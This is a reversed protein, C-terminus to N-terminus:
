DAKTLTALPFTGTERKDGKFWLCHARDGDIEEITMLPGGSKLKVVDGVQFGDAM